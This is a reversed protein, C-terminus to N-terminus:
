SGGAQTEADQLKQKMTDSLTMVEGEANRFVNVKVQAGGRRASWQRDPASLM